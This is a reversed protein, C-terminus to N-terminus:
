FTRLKRRLTLPMLTLPHVTYWTFGAPPTCVSDDICASSLGYGNSGLRTSTGDLCHNRTIHASARPAEQLSQVTATPGDLGRVPCTLVLRKGLAHNSFCQGSSVSSTSHCHAQFDGGQLWRSCARLIKSSTAHDSCNSDIFVQYEEPVKHRAQWGHRLCSTSRTLRRDHKQLVTHSSVVLSRRM